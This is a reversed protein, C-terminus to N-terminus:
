ERSPQPLEGNFNDGVRAHRTVVRTLKSGPVVFFTEEMSLPIFLEELMYEFLGLGSHEEIVEGFSKNIPWLDM